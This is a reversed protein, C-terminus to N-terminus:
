EKGGAESLFDDLYKRNDEEDINNGVVKCAAAMAITAIEAQMGKMAKGREVEIMHQADAIMKATEEQTKAVAADHEQASRQRAKEVIGVAEEKADALAGEYEEKMAQAQEKDSQAQDLDDQIMQQRKEMIGMVPKWLFIKIIAFFLLVNVVNIIITPIYFTMLGMEM